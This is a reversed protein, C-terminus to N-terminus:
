SVRENESELNILERHLLYQQDRIRARYQRLLSVLKACAIYALLAQAEALWGFTFAAQLYWVPVFPIRPLVGRSMVYPVTVMISWFVIAPWLVTKFAETFSIRTIGVAQMRCVSRALRKLPRLCRIGEDAQAHPAGGAIAGALVQYGLKVALLGVTWGHYVFFVPTQGETLRCLFTEKDNAGMIASIVLFTILLPM